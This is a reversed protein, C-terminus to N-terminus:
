ETSCCPNFTHSSFPRKVPIRRKECVRKEESPTLSHTSVSSSDHTLVPFQHISLHSLSHLTCIGSGKGAIFHPHPSQSLDQFPSHLPIVQNACLPHFLVITTLLLLQVLTNSDNQSSPFPIPSFSAFGDEKSGAAICDDVRKEIFTHTVCKM